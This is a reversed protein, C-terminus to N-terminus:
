RGQLVRTQRKLVRVSLYFVTVALMTLVYPTELEVVGTVHFDGVLDLVGYVLCIGFVTTYERRLVTKFSFPLAPRAWQSFRPVFAPTRNAWDAFEGGFEQQLFEEEAAMIREYYLWFALVFILALHWHMPFMAFGLWILFNGLYLPHRVISYLGTVNLEAARQMDTNRGSTASPVFGITFVRVLLGLVSVSICCLEWYIQWMHNHYPWDFERMEIALLVLLVLPLYSRWRFLWNGAGPFHRHLAM